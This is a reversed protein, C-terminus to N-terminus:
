FMAGRLAILFRPLRERGFIIWLRVKKSLTLHKNKYNTGKGIQLIVGTYIQVACKRKEM